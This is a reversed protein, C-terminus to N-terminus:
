ADVPWYSVKNHFASFVWFSLSWLPDLCLYAPLVPVLQSKLCFCFFVSWPNLSEFPILVPLCRVILMPWHLFVDVIALCPLSFLCSNIHVLLLALVLSLCPCNSAHEAQEALHRGLSSPTCYPSHTAAFGPSCLTCFPIALSVRQDFLLSTSNKYLIPCSLSWDQCM